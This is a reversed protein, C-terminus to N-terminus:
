EAKKEAPTAEAKVDKKVDKKLALKVHEVKIKEANNTGAALTVKVMEGKKLKALEEAKVVITKGKVVIENKATDISEIKGKVVASKAKEVKAPTAPTTATVPAAATAALAPKAATAPKAADAAFAMTGFCVLALVTIISMVKKM